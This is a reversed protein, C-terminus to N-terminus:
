ELYFNASDYCVVKVRNKDYFVDDINVEDIKGNYAGNFQVNCTKVGANNKYAVSVRNIGDLYENRREDNGMIRVQLIM